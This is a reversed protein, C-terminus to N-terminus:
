RWPRRRPASAGATRAVPVQGRRVASRATDVGKLCGSEANVTAVGRLHRAHDLPRWQHTSVPPDGWATPRGPHRDDSRPCGRPDIEAAPQDVRGYAANRSPAAGARIARSPRRVRGPASVRVGAICGPKTLTVIFQLSMKVAGAGRYTMRTATTRMRTVTWSMSVPAAASGVNEHRCSYLDAAKDVAVPALVPQPLRPPPTVCSRRRRVARFVICARHRASAVRDRGRRRGRTHCTTPPVRSLAADGGYFPGNTGMPPSRVTDAGLHSFLRLNDPTGGTVDRGHWTSPSAAVPRGM